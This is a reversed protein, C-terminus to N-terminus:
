TKVMGFLDGASNGPFYRKLNSARSQHLSFHEVESITITFLTICATYHFFVIFTRTRQLGWHHVVSAEHNMIMWTNSTFRPTTNGHSLFNQFWSEGHNSTIISGPDLNGNTGQPLGLLPPIVMGLRLLILLKSGPM